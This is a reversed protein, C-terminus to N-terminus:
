RGRERKKSPGLPTNPPVAAGAGVAGSETNAQDPPKSEGEGTCGAVAFGLAFTTMGAIIFSLNSCSLKLM